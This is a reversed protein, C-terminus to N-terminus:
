REIEIVFNAKSCNSANAPRVAHERLEDPPVSEVELVIAELATLAEGAGVEGSLTRAAGVQGRVPIHASHLTSFRRECDPNTTLRTGPAAGLRAPNLTTGAM